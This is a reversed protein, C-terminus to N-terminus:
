TRGRAGEQNPGSRPLEGQGALGTRGMPNLPRGGHLCVGGLGSSVNDPTARMAGLWSEFDNPVPQAMMGQALFEPPAYTPLPVDWSLAGSPVKVREPYGPHAARSRASGADERTALSTYKAVQKWHKPAQAAEPAAETLAIADLLKATLAKLDAPVKAGRPSRLVFRRGPIEIILRQADSGSKGTAEVSRVVSVPFFGKLQSCSDDSYYAFAGRAEDLIFHRTKWGKGFGPNQKELVWAGKQKASLETSRNAEKDGNDPVGGEDQPKGNSDNAADTGM